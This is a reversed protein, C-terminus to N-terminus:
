RAARGPRGLLRDRALDRASPEPLDDLLPGFSAALGTAPIRRGRVRNSVNRGHVTQLWGPSGGVEVVPMSLPLLNHWDSWCTVPEAASERVSCFANYRDRHAYLRGDVCKVVGETLYIATPRAPDTRVAPLRQVYDRALGDDNDLNTTVIVDSALRGVAAALDARLDEAPVRCRLLPTLVGSSRHEEMLALLWQPSDPDLYM